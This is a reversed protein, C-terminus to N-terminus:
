VAPSDRLYHVFACSGSATETGKESGHFPRPVPIVASSVSGATLLILLVRNHTFDPLCRQMLSMHRLSRLHDVEASPVHRHLIGVPDNGLVKVRPAM